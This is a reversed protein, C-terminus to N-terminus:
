FDDATADGVFLPRGLQEPYRRMRSIISSRRGSCVARYQRRRSFEIQSGESLLLAHRDSCFPGLHRKVVPFVADEPCRVSIGGAEYEGARVM